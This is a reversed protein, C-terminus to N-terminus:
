CARPASGRPPASCSRWPSCSRPMAGAPTACPSAIRSSFARAAALAVAAHALRLDWAGGTLVLLLPFLPPFHTHFGVWPAVAPNSGAIAQALVVYSASDDGISALGPQWAFAVLLAAVCALLAAVAWHRRFV